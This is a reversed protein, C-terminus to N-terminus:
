IKGEELKEFMRRINEAGKVRPPLLPLKGKAMLIPAKDADHFWHGSKLNYQTVLGFEFVRGYRKVNDLFAKYFTVVDRETVFGEKVAMAKLTDMVKALDVEHPCRTTCTYCSVCLWIAHSKLVTEKQGLQVLRMLRAPDIDMAFAIPCGAM